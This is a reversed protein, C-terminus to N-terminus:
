ALQMQQCVRLLVARAIDDKSATPLQEPAANARLLTVRNADSNFGITNDRVDNAVIMDAGKAALKKQANQLLDDTEAAFGLLFQDPRKQKGLGALIDPTRVLHLDLTTTDTQKKIKHDVVAAPRFDAVAAAMLTIDSDAFHATTATAMEAASVVPIVTVDQPASLSASSVLTVDAGLDRAARALAYGMKGSSKNGVYRVPDITERTGGATVLVRKGRLPQPSHDHLYAELATVITAPEALRGSGSYGEALFGETPDIVLVGDARLQQLNRRTAPNGWMNKNMAPAVFKPAATALLTSSAADDALGQAMKALINASAPAVIAIDTWDAIAIHKIPDSETATFLDTLVPRKSLTQFTLPTVFSAGAATEVVQVQAGQKILLRTLVASKYAAISGTVYLTVHKDKLMGM